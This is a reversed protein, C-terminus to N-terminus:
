QEKFKTPGQGNTKVSQIGKDRAAETNYMESSGIIQGNSAKLSFFPQGNKGTKREFREDIGSNKRCSEIGNEASSRSKYHQSTLIVQHNGSKLTFHYKDADTKKLEYYGPM